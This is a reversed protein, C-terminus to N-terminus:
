NSHLVITGPCRSEQDPFIFLLLLLIKRQATCSPKKSKLVQVNLFQSTTMLGPLQSCFSHLFTKIALVLFSPHYLWVSRPECRLKTINVLQSVHLLADSLRPKGALTPTISYRESHQRSSKRFPWEIVNAQKITNKASIQESSSSKNNNAEQRDGESPQSNRSLLSKQRAWGPLGVGFVTNTMHCCDLFIQQIFLLLSAM